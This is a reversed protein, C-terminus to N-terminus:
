NQEDQKDDNHPNNYQNMMKKKCILYTAGSGILLFVVCLLVIFWVPTPAKVNKNSEVKVTESQYVGDKPARMAVIEYTQKTGDEATCTVKINNAKGAVLNTGGEVEIKAKADVPTGIINLNEVEYPLWVTYKKVAPDFAPSLVFGEVGLASLTSDTGVPITTTPANPDQARTVIITYVKTAGGAATVTIRITNAGVALKTSGMTVKSTADQPTAQINLKDVNFDVSATYKTTTPKFTPSLTVGDISLKSLNANGTKPPKTTVVIPAALAKSYVANNISVSDAGDSAIGSFSVSIEAGAPLSSSVVFTATFIAKSSNIPASLQNDYALIKTGQSEVLWPSAINQSIGKLTLKSSDYAINGEIGSISSGKVYYTVKITDGARVESPGGMSGSAAVASANMPLVLTILLVLLTLLSTIKRM